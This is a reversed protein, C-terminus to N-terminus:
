PPRQFNSQSRAQMKALDINIKTVYILGDSCDDFTYKVAERSLGNKTQNDNFISRNLIIEAFRCM